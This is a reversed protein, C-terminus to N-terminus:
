RKPKRRHKTKKTKKVTRHQYSQAIEFFGTVMPLPLWALGLVVHLSCPGGHSLSVCGLGFCSVLPLCLLFVCFVISVTHPSSAPGFIQFNLSMKSLAAWFHGFNMIPYFCRSFLSGWFPWFEIHPLGPCRSIHRRNKVGCAPIERRGKYTSPPPGEAFNISRSGHINIQTRQREQCQGKLARSEEHESHKLSIASTWSPHSIFLDDTRSRM